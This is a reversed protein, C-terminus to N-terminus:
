SLELRVNVQNAPGGDGRAYARPAAGGGLSWGDIVRPECVNTEAGLATGCRAPGRNKM